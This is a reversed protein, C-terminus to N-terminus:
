LIEDVAVIVFEVVDKAEDVAVAGCAREIEAAGLRQDAVVVVEIHRPGDIFRRRIELLQDLEIGHARVKQQHVDAFRVGNLFDALDEAAQALFHFHDREVHEEFEGRAVFRVARPKLLGRIGDIVIRSTPSAAGEGRQKRMQRGDRTVGSTKRKGREEKEKTLVPMSVFLVLFLFSFSAFGWAASAAPPSAGNPM